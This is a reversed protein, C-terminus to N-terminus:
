QNESRMKMFQSIVFYLLIAIGLFRIDSSFRNDYPWFNDVLVRLGLGLFASILSTWLMRNEQAILKNEIQHRSIKGQEILQTFINLLEDSNVVSGILVNGNRTKITSGSLDSVETYEIIKTPWLFKEIAFAHETFVIRKIFTYPLSATIVCLFVAFLIAEIRRDAGSIVLGLVFITFPILVPPTLRHKTTYKPIFIIESM